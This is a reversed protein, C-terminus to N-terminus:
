LGGPEQGRGAVTVDVSEEALKAALGAQELAQKRADLAEGVAQKAQNIRQGAAAREAAPLKGLAQLELTIVGKKGLYHVRAEDLAALTSSGAARAKAEAILKDLDTSM